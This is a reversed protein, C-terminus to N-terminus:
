GPLKDTVVKIAKEIEGTLLALSAVAAVAIVALVLAYETMAQGDERRLRTSASIWFSNLLDFM